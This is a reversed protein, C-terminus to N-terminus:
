TMRPRNQTVIVREHPYQTTSEIGTKIDPRVDVHVDAGEKQSFAPLSAFLLAAPLLFRSIRSPYLLSLHNTLIPGIVRLVTGNQVAVVGRVEDM